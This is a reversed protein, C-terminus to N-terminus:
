RKRAGANEAESQALAGLSAPRDTGRDVQAVAESEGVPSRTEKRRERPGPGKLSNGQRLDGSVGWLIGAFFVPLCNWWGNIILDLMRVSLMCVLGSILVFGARDAFRSRWVARLVPITFMAYYLVFGVVGAVGVRITTWGDLGVEGTGFTEAGPIRSYTGWGFWVREGIQSLVHEEELFRGEFSRAREEQIDYAVEVVAEWPFLDAVRLSPYGIALIAMACGAGMMIRPRLFVYGLAVAGGSLNGAVNRTLVLGLWVMGRVTGPSLRPLGAGALVHPMSLKASLVVASAVLAGAMFNALELANRFFVIPQVQGWRVQGHVPLGYVIRGLHWARFVVSALAELAILGTYFAAAIALTRMFVYLDDVSRFLMRGVVFPVAMLLFDDVSQAFIWYLGLGDELRGEDLMPASNMMATGVNALMTAVVLMELGLGVRARSVARGQYVCAALLASLYTIYEKDLPPIVPLDLAILEPLVMTGGLVVISAAQAPSKVRRFIFLAFVPFLLLLLHALTTKMRRGANGLVKRYRSGHPEKRCAPDDGLL